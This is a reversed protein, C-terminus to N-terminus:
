KVRLQTVKVLIHIWIIFIIDNLFENFSYNIKM